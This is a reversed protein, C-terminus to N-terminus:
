GQEGEYEEKNRRILANLADDMALAIYAAADQLSDMREPSHMFQCTSRGIKMLAMMILVDQSDLSDLMDGHASSLYTSWLSAIVPTPDKSYQKGREDLIAAIPKVVYQYKSM